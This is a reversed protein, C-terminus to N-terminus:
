WENADSVMEPLNRLLTDSRLCMRVIWCMWFSVFPYALAEYEGWWRPIQWIQDYAIVLLLVWLSQLLAFQSGGIPFATTCLRDNSETMRVTVLPKALWVFEIIASFARVYQLDCHNHRYIIYLAIAGLFSSNKQWATLGNVFLTDEALLLLPVRADPHCITSQAFKRTLAQEELNSPPLPFYDELWRLWERPSRQRPDFALPNPEVSWRSQTPKITKSDLLNDPTPPPAGPRVLRRNRTKNNIPSYFQRQTSAKLIPSAVVDEWSDKLEEFRMDRDDVGTYDDSDESVMEGVDIALNEPTLSRLPSPVQSQSDVSKEKWGNVYHLIWNKISDSQIKMIFPQPLSPQLFARWLYTFTAVVLQAVQLTSYGYNARGVYLAGLILYVLTREWVQRKYAGTALLLCVIVSTAHLRYQITELNM